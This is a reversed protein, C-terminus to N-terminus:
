PEPIPATLSETKQGIGSAWARFQELEAASTFARKPIIQLIQPSWYFVFLHETELCSTYKSWGFQMAEDTGQFDLKEASCYLMVPAVMLPSKQIRKAIRSRLMVTTSCTLYLGLFACFGFVLYDRKTSFFAIALGAMGVLLVLFGLVMTGYFEIPKQRLNKRNAELWDDLTLQYNLTM